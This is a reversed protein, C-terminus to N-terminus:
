RLPPPLHTPPPVHPPSPLMMASRTSPRGASIRISLSTGHFSRGRHRQVTRPVQRTQQVALLLVVQARRHPRQELVAAPPLRHEHSGLSALRIVGAEPARESGFEAAGPQEYRRLMAACPAGVALGADHGLARALM